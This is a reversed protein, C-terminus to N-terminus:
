LEEHDSDEPLSVEPVQVDAEADENWWSGCLGCWWIDDSILETEKYGCWPCSENM